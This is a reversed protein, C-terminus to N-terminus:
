QAVPLSFYFTAGENEQSEAWTFGEHKRIIRQVTALGVGTGEFEDTSHLRQFVGFLKNVYKMDFGVGNDKIAYVVQNDKLFSSIEIVPKEIKSSYKIANSILNILVQKILAYDAMANQLPHLIFEVKPKASEQVEDFATICLGSMNILTTNIPKRGLRSFTLLDDILTGMRRANEQVEHLLRKGEKDLVDSYDEEVISAYGSVARLPARLDHSVSYSFAELDKNATELQRTREAVMNELGENLNKIADENRKRDTIDRVFALYNKDPMQKISIEVNVEHGDTKTFSKEFKITEGNLSLRQEVLSITETDGPLLDSLQMHLLRHKTVGILETMRKNVNTFKKAFPDYVIIGDVAEEILAKYREESERLAEVAKVRETVDQALAMFSTPTGNENKLVSIYWECYIIDGSKTKNRNAIKYRDFIGTVLQKIVPEILRNDEEYVLKFESFHKGLVENEPWGFVQEAQPSWSRLVFASDFEMSALPSNTIHFSLKDHLQKLKEEFRKQDSIDKIFVAIGDQSPYIHNEQWLDLGAFYDVNQVYQQTEFAGLFAKYTDSGIAEPFVEWVNKGLLFEPSYGTMDGIRRNVYTYKFDRNLAIFGDEIRELIDSVQKTKFSLLAEANIRETVDRLNLIIGNLSPDDLLNAVTGELWIYHGNKHLKRYKVPFAVGPSALAQKVVADNQPRDEPHVHEFRSIGQLDELTWGTIRTASASQFVTNYNKDLLTIIDNSNEILSRFRQENAIVIENLSSIKEEALKANTIDSKIAVYQYPKGHDDMFPVIVTNAWYYTGDKAKNKIEGKWIKGSTITAWLDKIFAKPHFSSNIIRHDQGILEERSYKSVICFNDNVYRIIGKQDTIAVISSEDLAHKYDALEKLQEDISQSKINLTSLFDLVDKEKEPTRNKQLQEPSSKEIGTNLLQEIQEKIINFCENEDADLNKAVTDMIFLFGSVSHDKLNFPSSLFFKVNLEGTIVPDNNFVPNHSIDTTTFAQGQSRLWNFLPQQWIDATPTFGKNICAWQDDGDHYAVGGFKCHCANLLLTLQTVIDKKTDPMVQKFMSELLNDPSIEKTLEHM